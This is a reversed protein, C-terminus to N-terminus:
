HTRNRDYTRGQKFGLKTYETLENAPILINKEINTVWIRKIKPKYKTRNSRDYPTYNFLIGKNAFHNRISSIFNKHTGFRYKLGYSIKHDKCYSYWKQLEFKNGNQTHFSVVADLVESTSIGSYNNNKNGSNLDSLIAREDNTAIRGKSTHIWKGSLVNEHQNSVFGITTDTNADKVCIMGIKLQSLKAKVDDSHTKGYMHHMTADYNDWYQNKKHEYTKSCKFLDHNTTDDHKRNCGVEMMIQLSNYAGHVYKKQALCHKYLLLHAIFHERFTLLVLNSDTDDGKMFKPVIHHAEFYKTKNKREIIRDPKLTYRTYMLKDYIKKYDMM